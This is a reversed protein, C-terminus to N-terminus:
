VRFVVESTNDRIAYIIYNQVFCHVYICLYIKANVFQQWINSDFLSIIRIINEYISVTKYFTRKNICSFLQM